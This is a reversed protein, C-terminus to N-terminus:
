LVQLTVYGTYTDNQIYVSDNTTIVYTHGSTSPTASWYYGNQWGLPAGSYTDSIEALDTYTMNQNLYYSSDVNSSGTGVTPLALSVGNLTAFRYDNTTGYNGDVNQVSTNSVGNIDHNFLGDLVDHITYDLGDNLSGTNASTGDGSRDWFYFWKGDVLVPDILKGYSALDIISQGAVYEAVNTVDLAINQNSYNGAQDVATITFDYVNNTGNDAPAEYNPSTNFKVEGTTTNLNFLGADTGSIVYVLPLSTDTATATYVVTTTAVNEAITATTASTITPAIEDLDNIALTVAQESSNGATDTAVITFNYSPKTEFDPNATLTIAGTSNNISLLSADGTNKLSYTITATDTATSTYIVQSAGSNENKATAATGSTISPATTDSPIPTPTPLVPSTPAPNSDGGGGLVAAAGGVGVAGIGVMTMTSLGTTTATGAVAAGTTGSAAGVVADTAIGTALEAYHPLSALDVANDALEYNEYVAIPAESGEEFVLLDKGSKKTFFKGSKPFRVDLLENPNLNIPKTIVKSM